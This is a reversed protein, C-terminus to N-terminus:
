AKVELNTTPLKRADSRIDVEKTTDQIDAQEQPSLVLTPLDKYPLFYDRRKTMVERTGGQELDPVTELRVREYDNAVADAVDDIKFALYVQKERSTLPWLQYNVEREPTDTEIDNWVLDLAANSFDKYGGYWYEAGPTGFIAHRPHAVRRAIYLPVDMRENQANPTPGITDVELTQLNLREIETQSVRTIKFQSTRELFKRAIGDARLGDKTLGAQKVHCLHQAHVCRIKRQNMCHMVDGDQWAPDPGNTGVKIILEAV